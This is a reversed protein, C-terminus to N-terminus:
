PSNTVPRAASGGQIFGGGSRKGAFAPIWSDQQQASSPHAGAKALAANQRIAYTFWKTERSRLAAFRPGNSFATDPNSQRALREM